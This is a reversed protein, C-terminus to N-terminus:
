VGGSRMRLRELLEGLAAGLQVCRKGSKMAGHGAVTGNGNEERKGGTCAANDPCTMKGHPLTRKDALQNM